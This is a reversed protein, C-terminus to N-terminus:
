FLNSTKQLLARGNQKDNDMSYATHSNFVFLGVSEM